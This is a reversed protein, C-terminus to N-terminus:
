KTPKAPLGSKAPPALTAGDKASDAKPPTGGCRVIIRDTIDLGPAAYPVVNKYVVLDIKNEGAYAAIHAQIEDTTRKILNREMESLTNSRDAMQADARRIAEEIDRAKAEALKRLEEAKAPALMPNQADKVAQDRDAMRRDIDARLADREKTYEALTSELLKQDNPTNPHNALAREMDVVAFTQAFLAAMPLLSASALALIRKM